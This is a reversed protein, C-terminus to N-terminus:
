GIIKGSLPEYIVWGQNPEGEFEICIMGEEIAIQTPWYKKTEEGVWLVTGDASVAVPKSTYYGIYIFTGDWTVATRLAASIPAQDETLTWAVDGNILDYATMGLEANNVIVLPKETTGAIFAECLTLETRYSTGTTICWVSIDNDDCVSVTLTEGNMTDEHSLYVKRGYGTYFPEGGTHVASPSPTGPISIFEIKGTNYGWNETTLYEALIYGRYGNYSCLYFNGVAVCDTVEAGLPVKVVRASSTSAAARLSVWEDCNVVVMNEIVEASPAASESRLYKTLVYGSKGNYTCFTFDGYVTCDTVTAGKPVKQLRTSSTSATPRMSVWEDCNTVVMNEALGSLSFILVLAVLLAFIRRM